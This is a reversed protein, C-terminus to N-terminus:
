NRPTGMEAGVEESKATDDGKRPSAKLLGGQEKGSVFVCFWKGDLVLEQAKEGVCPLEGVGRCAGKVQLRAGGPAQM